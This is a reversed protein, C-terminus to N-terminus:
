TIEEEISRKRKTEDARICEHKAQSRCYWSQESSHTCEYEFMDYGEYQRQSHESSQRPYRCSNGVVIEKGSICMIPRRSTMESRRAPEDRGCLLKGNLLSILMDKRGIQVYRNKLIKVDEQKIQSSGQRRMIEAYTKWCKHAQEKQLWSKKRLNGADLELAHM